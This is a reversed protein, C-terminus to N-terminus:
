LVWGRIKCSETLVCIQKRLVFVVSCIVILCPYLCCYKLLEVDNIYNYYNIETYEFISENYSTSGRMDSGQKVSIIYSNDMTFGLLKSYHSSYAVSSEGLSM